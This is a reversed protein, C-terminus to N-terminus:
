VGSGGCRERHQDSSYADAIAATMEDITTLDGSEVAGASLAAEMDRALGHLSMKGHLLRERPLIEANGGVDNAVVTVRAAVADLLTYSYNEWASIQVLVDAEAMAEVPDMFGAFEVSDELRLGRVLGRLSDRLPGDGAIVLRADRRQKQVLAFARIVDDLRKEEALRSLTLFTPRPDPLKSTRREEVQKRIRGADVGNRIVRVRTARWKSIMVRRTSECVAIKRDTVRLRAGHLMRMMLGRWRRSQYTSDEPAIGHETTALLPTPYGGALFARVKLYGVVSAAVVDAFALHSHVLDPSLEAITSRLTRVSRVYGHGTGFPGTLVRVGRERLRDALAGAPCLVVVEWGPIGRETVDLVHRAVGGIEPVPVLWLARSRSM